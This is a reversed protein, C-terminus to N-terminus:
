RHHGGGHFGGSRPASHTTSSSSSSTHAPAHTATGHYAPMSSRFSPTSYAGPTSSHFSPSRQFSRGQASGRYESTGQSRAVASSRDYSNHWANGGASSTRIGLGNYGGHVAATSSRTAYAMARPNAVAHSQPAASTPVHAEGLSPSMRQPPHTGAGGQGVSPSAPHYARTSAAAAQVQGHDRVVYASVGHNFAAGTPVFCYAAYPSRGLGMAYGGAGWYWTPPMPAWGLYGGDGVRWSVWAPAYRRGPIWGWNSGAWVWRGYHFPIAGWTYDSEWMWDGSDAMGWQGATQYPAFDAGVEASNPVWITGYTPDQVWSGHPDLEQRFDTLASPDNDAYQDTADGDTPDQPAEAVDGAYGPPYPTETDASALAPTVATVILALLGAARRYSRSSALSLSRDASPMSLM